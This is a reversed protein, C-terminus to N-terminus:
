LKKAWESMLKDGNVADLLYEPKIDSHEMFFRLYYPSYEVDIDPHTMAVIFQETINPLPPLGMKIYEMYLSAMHEFDCELRSIFNTEDDSDEFNFEEDQFLLVWEGYYNDDFDRVGLDYFYKYKSAENDEVCSEGTYNEEIEQATANLYILCRYDDNLIVSPLIEERPLKDLLDKVEHFSLEELKYDDEKQFDEEIYSIQEEILDFITNESYGECKLPKGQAIYYDKMPQTYKDILEQNKGFESCIRSIAIEDCWLMESDLIRDVVPLWGNKAAACLAKYPTLTEKWRLLFYEPTIAEGSDIYWFDWSDLFENFSDVQKLKHTQCLLHVTYKENLLKRVQEQSDFLLELEEKTHPIKMYIYYLSVPSAHSIFRSLVVDPLINSEM